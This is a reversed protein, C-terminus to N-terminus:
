LVLYTKIPCAILDKSVYSIMLLGTLAVRTLPIEAIRALVDRFSDTSSTWVVQKPLRMPSTTSANPLRLSASPCHVSSFKKVDEILVGSLILPRIPTYLCIEFLVHRM